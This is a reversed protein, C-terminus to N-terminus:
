PSGRRVSPRAPGQVGGAQRPGRCQGPQSRAVERESWEAPGGGAADSSLRRSMHFTPGLVPGTQARFPLALPHAGPREAASGHARRALM